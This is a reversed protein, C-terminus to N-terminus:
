SVGSSSSCGQSKGASGAAWRCCDPQSVVSSWPQRPLLVTPLGRTYCLASMCGLSSAVTGPSWPVKYARCAEYSGRRPTFRSAAHVQPLGSPPLSGLRVQHSTAAPTAAAHAQPKYIAPYAVQCADGCGACTLWQQLSYASSAQCTCPDACLKGSAVRKTCKPARWAHRPLLVPPPLAGVAGGRSPPELPTNIARGWEDRDRTGRAGQPAPPM